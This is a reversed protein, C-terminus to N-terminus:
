NLRKTGSVSHFSAFMCFTKVGWERGRQTYYGDGGLIEFYGKRGVSKMLILVPVREVGRDGEGLREPCGSM